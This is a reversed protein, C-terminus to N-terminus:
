RASFPLHAICRGFQRFRHDVRPFDHNGVRVLSKRVLEFRFASRLCVSGVQLLRLLRTPAFRCLGVSPRGTISALRARAAPMSARSRREGRTTSGCIDPSLLGVSKPPRSAISPLNHAVAPVSARSRREGRTTSSGMDAAATWRIKAPPRSHRAFRARAAPVSTRGRWEGQM